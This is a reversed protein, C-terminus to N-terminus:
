LEGLFCEYLEEDFGVLVVRFGENKSVFDLIECVMVHAAEGKDVGGVGTGMGPFAVEFIGKERALELAALVARRVNGVGVREAPGVMTPAHIVFRCPLRGATTLVASGVAVPAHAMAEDEIIQGGKRRITLAVGGGMSGSSNAPNVIADVNLACIDGSVVSVGGM